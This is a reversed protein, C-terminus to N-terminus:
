QEAEEKPFFEDLRTQRNLVVYSVFGFETLSTQRTNNNGEIIEIDKDSLNSETYEVSSGMTIIVLLRSQQQAQQTKQGYLAKKALTRPALTRKEIDTGIDLRIKEFEM